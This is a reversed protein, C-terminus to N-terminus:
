AFVEDSVTSDGLGTEDAPTAASNGDPLPPLPDDAQRPTMASDVDTNRVPRSWVVNHSGDDQRFCSIYLPKDLSPDEIKGNLFIEGTKKSALEYLAGVQVWEKAASLAFIEYKPARPNASRLERLAITVSLTLTAIKGVLTGSNTPKISGINM